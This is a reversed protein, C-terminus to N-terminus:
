RLTYGSVRWTKDSDLHFSVLERVLQKENSFQTAFSVNIYYGAPTGGGKSESRTIAAIKRSVPKGVTSRDASIQKVFADSTM